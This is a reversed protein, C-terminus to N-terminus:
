YQSMQTTAGPTTQQQRQPVLIDIRKKENEQIETTKNTIVSDKGGTHERSDTSEKLSNEIESKNSLRSPSPSDKEKISKDIPVEDV